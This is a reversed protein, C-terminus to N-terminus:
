RNTSQYTYDAFGTGTLSVDPCVRRGWSEFLCPRIVATVRVSVGSTYHCEGLADAWATKLGAAAGARTSCDPNSLARNEEVDFSLNHVEVELTVDSARLDFAGNLNQDVVAAALEQAQAPPIVVVGGGAGAQGSSAAAYAAAQATETLRAHASTSIAMTHLGFIATLGVLAIFGFAMLIQVGRRSRLARRAGILRLHLVSVM